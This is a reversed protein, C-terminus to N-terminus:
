QIHGSYFGEGVIEGYYRYFGPREKLKSQLRGLNASIAQQDPTWDGDLGVVPAHPEQHSIAFGRALCESILASQRAALYGTRGYFFRVHGTGM